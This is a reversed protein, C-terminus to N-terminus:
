MRRCETTQNLDGMPNEIRNLKQGVFLLQPSTWRNEPIPVVWMSVNALIQLKLLARSLTTDGAYAIGLNLRGHYDCFLPRVRPPFLAAFAPLRMIELNHVRVIAEPLLHRYIGALNPVSVVLLGGPKLIRLHAAIADAPNTFHEVLGASYVIDFSEEREAQFAPALFDAHLTHRDDIGHRAFLERQLQLGQLSIDAGFVEYGFMERWRLLNRGPASGLEIVRAPGRPVFKPLIERWLQRDAPVEFLFRRWHSLPKTPIAGGSWVKDWYADDTLPSQPM